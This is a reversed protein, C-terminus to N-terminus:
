HVLTAFRPDAAIKRILAQTAQALAQSTNNCATVGNFGSDFDYRVETSMSAGNSSVLALALEWYGKVVSASSSFEVRTLAGELRVGGESHIGAYKFEDNLAKRVFEPVTLGNEFKLNGVARCMPDFDVPGTMTAVEVRAGAYRSLAQKVDPTVMYTAPTMTICGSLLLAAAVAAMFTRVAM